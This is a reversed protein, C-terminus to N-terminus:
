GAINLSQRLRLHEQYHAYIWQEVAAKNKFDIISLDQGGTGIASNMDNHFRQHRELIADAHQQDWPIIVYLTQPIKVQAQIAQAIDQHDIWNYFWFDRWGGESLAPTWLNVLGM